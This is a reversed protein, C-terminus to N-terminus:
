DCEDEPEQSAHDNRLRWLVRALKTVSICREPYKMAIDRYHRHAEDPYARRLWEVFVVFRFFTEPSTDVGEFVELPNQDSYAFVMADVPDEYERLQTKLYINECLYKVIKWVVRSAIECCAVLVEM